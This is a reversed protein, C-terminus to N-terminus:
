DGRDSFLTESFADLMHGSKGAIRQTLDEADGAGRDTVDIVNGDAIIAVGIEACFDRVDECFRERGSAADESVELAACFHLAKLLEHCISAAYGLGIAPELDFTDFMVQRM